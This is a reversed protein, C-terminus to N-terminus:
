FMAEACDLIALQLQAKWTFNEASEPLRQNAEVAMSERGEAVGGFLM